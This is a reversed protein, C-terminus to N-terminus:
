SQILDMLELCLYNCSLCGLQTLLHTLVRRRSLRYLGVTREMVGFVARHAVEQREARHVAEPNVKWLGM